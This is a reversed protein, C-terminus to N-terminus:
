FVLCRFRNHFAREWDILLAAGIWVVLIVYQMICLYFTKKNNAFMNKLYDAVPKQQYFSSISPYSLLTLFNNKESVRYTITYDGEKNNLRHHNKNHTPIWAFVPFGYFVTLWWDTITNLTKSKWMPIHNHNHTMVSVAISLFLYFPYIYWVVGASTWQFVLLSTTLAIYVLSKIDNIYRLM